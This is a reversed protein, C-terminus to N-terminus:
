DRSAGAGRALGGRDRYRGPAPRSGTPTCGGRGRSEAGATRRTAVLGAPIGQYTVTLVRAQGSTRALIGLLIRITTSKGAGNPGLLGLLEGPRVQLSVDAVATREGYRKRLGQAQLAPLTM